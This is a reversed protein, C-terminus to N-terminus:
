YSKEEEQRNVQPFRKAKLEGKKINKMERQWSQQIGEAINQTNSGKPILSSAKLARQQIELEGGTRLLGSGLKEKRTPIGISGLIANTSHEILFRSITNATINGKGSTGEVRSLLTFRTAIDTVVMVYCFGSEDTALPGFLDLAVHEFPFAASITKLPHFGDQRRQGDGIDLSNGAEVMSKNCGVVRSGITSSLGM